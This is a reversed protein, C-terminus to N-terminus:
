PDDTAHWKLGNPYFKGSDTGWYYRHQSGYPAEGYSPDTIEVDIRTWTNVCPTIPFHVARDISLLDGRVPVRMAPDGLLGTGLITRREHEPNQVLASKAEMLVTGIPKAGVCLPTEQLREVLETCLHAMTRQHVSIRPGIVGVVGKSAEWLLEEVLVADSRQDGFCGLDCSMGLLLPYKGENDLMSAEFGVPGSRRLFEVITMSNAFTGYGVWLGVGADINEITYELREELDEIGNTAGIETALGFAPVGCSSLTESIVNLQLHSAYDSVVRGWVIGGEGDHDVDFGTFLVKNRWTQDLSDWLTTDHSIIKAVIAEAEEVCRAPLRGIPIDGLGDQDFDVYADDHPISEASIFPICDLSSVRCKSGILVVFELPDQQYRSFLYDQVETSTIEQDNNGHEEDIERISVCDTVLPYQDYCNVSVSERHNCLQQAATELVDAHIVLYQTTGAHSLVSSLAIIWVLPFWFRCLRHHPVRRHLGADGLPVHGVSDSPQHSLSLTLSSAWDFKRM